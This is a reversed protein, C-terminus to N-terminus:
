LSEVKEQLNQIYFNRRSDVLPDNMLAESFATNLDEERNESELLKNKLKLLQDKDEAYENTLEINPVEIVTGDKDPEIYGDQNSPVKLDNVMDLRQQGTAQKINLIEQIKKNYDEIQLQYNKVKKDSAIIDEESPTPLQYKNEVGDNTPTFNIVNGEQFETNTSSHKYGDDVSGKHIGVYQQKTPLNTYRYLYAEFSAPPTAIKTEKINKM